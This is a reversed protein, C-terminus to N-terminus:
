YTLYDIKEQIVAKFLKGLIEPKGESDIKDLLELIKEGVSCSYKQSSNIEEIKKIRKESPIKHLQFLFKYLKKTMFHQDISNTFKVIGIVSGVLPMDKLVGEDLIADILIESYETALEPLKSDKIVSELQNHPNPKQEM